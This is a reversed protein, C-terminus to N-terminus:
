LSNKMKNLEQLTEWCHVLPINGGQYRRNAYVEVDESMICNQKEIHSLGLLHGWEHMLTSQELREQVDDLNTLTELTSQFIFLTDKHLTIGAYEPNSAYTTLYVVHVVPSSSNESILQKRIQNLDQDSYSERSAIQSTLSTTVIVSKGTTDSIMQQIWQTASSNIEVNHAYDIIVSITPQKPNLYVYRWDGPENLHITNVVTPYRLLFLKLQKGVFTQNDFKILFIVVTALVTSASICVVCITLLLRLLKVDKTYVRLM